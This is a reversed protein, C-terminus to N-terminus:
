QSPNPIDAPPVPGIDQSTSATPPVTQPPLPQVVLPNGNQDLPVGVTDEDSDAPLGNLDDVPPAMTAPADMAAPANLTAAPALVAPAPQPPSAAPAQTKKEALIKGVADMLRQAEPDIGNAPAANAAPAVAVSPATTPAAEVTPRPRPLPPAIVAPPNTTTKQDAPLTATRMAPQPALMGAPASITTDPAITTAPPPTAPEAIMGMGSKVVGGYTIVLVAIGALLALIGIALVFRLVRSGSSGGLDDPPGGSDDLDIPAKPAATEEFRPARESSVSGLRPERRGDDASAEPHVEPVVRSYTIVPGAEDAALLLNTAESRM